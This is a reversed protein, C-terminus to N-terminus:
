AGRRRRPRKAAGLVLDTRGGPVLLEAEAESGDPGRAVCRHGGAPVREFAFSGDPGTMTLAGRDPLAVWVNGVGNGSDDVVRGGSRHVEEVTSRGTAV